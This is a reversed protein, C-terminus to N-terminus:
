DPARNWAPDIPHFLFVASTGQQPRNELTLSGGQIQTLWRALPLGLGRAGRKTTFYPEFALRACEPSLGTGRDTFRIEVTKGDDQSATSVTLRGGEAMSELANKIVADFAISLLGTDVVIPPLRLGQDSVLLVQAAECRWQRSSLFEELFSNIDLPHPSFEPPQTLLVFDELIETIREASQGALALLDRDPGPPLRQLSMQLGGTVTCLRGRLKHVLGRGLDGLYQTRERVHDPFGYARSTVSDRGVTQISRESVVRPAGEPHTKKEDIVTLPVEQASPTV